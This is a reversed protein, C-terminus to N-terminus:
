DAGLRWTFTLAWRARDGRCQHGLVRRLDPMAAVRAASLQNSPPSPADTVILHQRPALARDRRADFGM